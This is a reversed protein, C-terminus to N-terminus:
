RGTLIAVSGCVWLMIRWFPIETACYRGTWITCSRSPLKAKTIKIIETFLIHWL